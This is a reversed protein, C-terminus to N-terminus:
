QRPTFDIPLEVWNRVPRGNVTAPSFRMRPVLRIAAASLGPHPSEVVEADGPYVFGDTDVRLRLTVRGYTERLEAPTETWLAAAIEDQNLLSPPTEVASLKDPDPRPRRRIEAGQGSSPASGLVPPRLSQVCPLRSLARESGSLDFFFDSEGGNVRQRIVLRAATRARSTFAYNEASPLRTVGEIRSGPGGLWTESRPEDRDFRWTISRGIGDPQPQLQILLRPGVCAWYLHVSETGVDAVAAYSEDVDTIPDASIQVGFRGISDFGAPQAAAARPLLALAPVLLSLHRIMPIMYRHISVASPMALPYAPVAQPTERPGDGACPVEFTM